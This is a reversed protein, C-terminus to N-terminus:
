KSVADAAARKAAAIAAKDSAEKEKRQREAEEQVIKVRRFEKFHHLCELYDERFPNCDM